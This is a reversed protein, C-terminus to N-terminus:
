LKFYLSFSCTHSMNGRKLPLSFIWFLASNSFPAKFMVKPLVFAPSCCRGPFHVNRAGLWSATFSTLSDSCWAEPFYGMLLSSWEGRLLSGNQWRLTLWLVALESDSSPVRCDMWWVLLSYVVFDRVMNEFPRISKWRSLNKDAELLRNRAEGAKVLGEEDITAMKQTFKLGKWHLGTGCSCASWPMTKIERCAYKCPATMSGVLRRRTLTFLELQGLREEPAYRRYVNTM